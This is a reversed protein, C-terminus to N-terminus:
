LSIQSTFLNWCKTLFIRKLLKKTLFAQSKTWKYRKRYYRLTLIHIFTVKLFKKKDREDIINIPTTGSASYISSSDDSDMEIKFKIM